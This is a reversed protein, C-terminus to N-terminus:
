PLRFRADVEPEGRYLAHRHRVDGPGRPRARHLPAPAGREQRRDDGPLLPDRGFQNGAGPLPPHPVAPLQRGRGRARDRIGRIPGVGDGTRLRRPLREGGSRPLGVRFARGALGRRRTGAPRPQRLRGQRGSGPHLHVRPLRRRHKRVMHDHRGAYRGPVRFFSRKRDDAAGARENTGGHGTFVELVPYCRRM